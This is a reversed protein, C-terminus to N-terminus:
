PNGSAPTKLVVLVCRPRGDGVPEDGTTAELPKIALTQEDMVFDHRDFGHWSPGDAAVAPRHALAVVVLIALSSVARMKLNGRMRPEPIM